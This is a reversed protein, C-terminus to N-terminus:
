RLKSLDRLVALAALLVAAPWWALFLTFGIGLNLALRIAQTILVMWLGVRRGKALLVGGAIAVLGLAEFLLLVPLTVQPWELVLSQAEFLLQVTALANAVVALAGIVLASQPVGPSEPGTSNM